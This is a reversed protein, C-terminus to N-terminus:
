NARPREQPQPVVADLAPPQGRRVVAAATLALIRIDTWLSQERVYRLQLRIKEPRIKEVYTREPDTSAALVAGEDHNWLTAFDTIGPRVTLIAQEEPTYM